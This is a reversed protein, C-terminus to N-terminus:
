NLPQSSAVFSAGHQRHEGDHHGRDIHDHRPEYHRPNFHRYGHPYWVRGVWIGYPVAPDIYLCENSCFYYNTNTYGNYALCTDICQQYPSQAVIVVQSQANISFIAIFVALIIAVRM